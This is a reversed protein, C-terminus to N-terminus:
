QNPLKSLEEKAISSGADAAKQLYDRSKALDKEVGDGDRYREGMRFLGYADGKEAMERNSKLVKEDALRKVATAREKAAQRQEAILKQAAEQRKNYEAQLKRLDDETPKTGLDWLELQQGNLNTTGVQMAYFHTKQGIAPGESVTWNRIVIEQGPVEKTGVDVMKTEDHYGVPALKGGGFSPVRTVVAQQVAEVTYTQVVILDNQIKKITGNMEHWLQSKYINYIQGNVVWLPEPTQVPQATSSIALIGIACILLNKM